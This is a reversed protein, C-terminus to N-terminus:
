GLSDGGLGRQVLIGGAESERRENAAAATVGRM